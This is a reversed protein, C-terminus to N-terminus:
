KFLVFFLQVIVYYIVVDKLVIMGEQRAKRTQLCQCQASYQSLATKCLRSTSCTPVLETTVAAM